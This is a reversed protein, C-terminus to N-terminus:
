TKASPLVRCLTPTAAVGSRISNTLGPSPCSGEAGPDGIRDDEGGAVPQQAQPLPDLLLEPLDVLLGGDMEHITGHRHLRIEVVNEEHRLLQDEVDGVGRVLLGCRFARADTEVKGREELRHGPEASRGRRRSLVRLRRGHRPGHEPSDIRERRPLIGVLIRLLAEGPQAPVTAGEIDRDLLGIAVVAVQADAEGRRKGGSRGTVSVDPHLPILGAIGLSFDATARGADDNM